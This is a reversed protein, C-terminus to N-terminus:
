FVLSKDAPAIDTSYAAVGLVAALGALTVLAAVATRKPLARLLPPLTRDRPRPASPGIPHDIATRPRTAATTTSM